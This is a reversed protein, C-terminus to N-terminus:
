LTPSAQAVVIGEVNATGRRKGFRLEIKAPVLTGPRWGADVTGSYVGSPGPWITIYVNEYLTSTYHRRAHQFSLTPVKMDTPMPRNDAPQVSVTTYLLGPPPLPADLYPGPLSRIVYVRVRFKRDGVRVITDRGVTSPTIAAAIAQLNPRPQSAALQTSGLVAALLAILLRM